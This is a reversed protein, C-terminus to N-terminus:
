GGVASKDTEGFEKAGKCGSNRIKRVKTILFEVGGWFDRGRIIVYVPNKQYIAICM